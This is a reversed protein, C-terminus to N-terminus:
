LGMSKLKRVIDSQGFNRGILIPDALNAFVKNQIRIIEDYEFENESDLLHWRVSLDEKETDSLTTKNLLVEFEHSPLIM